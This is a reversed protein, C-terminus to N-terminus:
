SSLGHTSHGHTPRPTRPRRNWMHVDGKKKGKGKKPPAANKKKKGRPHHRHHKRKKKEKGPTTHQTTQKNKKQNKKGNKTQNQKTGEQNTTERRNSGNKKKKPHPGRRAQWTLAQATADEQLMTHGFAIIHGGSLMAKPKRKRYQQVGIDKNANISPTGPLNCIIIQIQHFFLQPMGTWWPQCCHCVNLEPVAKSPNLEGPARFSQFQAFGDFRAHWLQRPCPLKARFAGHWGVALLALLCVFVPVAIDDLLGLTSRCNAVTPVRAFALISVLTRGVAQVDTVDFPTPLLMAPDLVALRHLSTLHSNPLRAKTLPKSAKTFFIASQGKRLWTLFHRAAGLRHMFEWRCRGQPQAWARFHKQTQHLVCAAEARWTSPTQTRGRQCSWCAELWGPTCQRGQQWTRQWWILVPASCAKLCLVGQGLKRGQRRREHLCSCPKLAHTRRDYCPPTRLHSPNPMQCTCQRAQLLLPPLREMGLHAPDNPAPM